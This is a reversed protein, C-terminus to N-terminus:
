LEYGIAGLRQRIEDQLEESKLFLESLETTLRAMKEDFIEGDDAQEEIGVYRGPTLIFDHKAIEGTEAAACFGKKDELTGNDFATFTDAIKAIDEATMERLKRSLMTGM